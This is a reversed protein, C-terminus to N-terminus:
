QAIKMQKVDLCFLKEVQNYISYSELYLETSDQQKKKKKKELRM